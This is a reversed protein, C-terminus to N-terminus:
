FSGAFIEERGGGQRGIRCDFLRRHDTKKREIGAFWKRFLKFSYPKQEMSDIILTPKPLTIRIGQPRLSTPKEPPKRM